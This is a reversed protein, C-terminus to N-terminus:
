QGQRSAPQLHYTLFVEDRQWGAAEYVAQATKNTRATTLSLRIAGLTQAYQAAADLLMTGIGKQRHRQEVFLDNLIFIRAMSVSSFSPYLQTFGAVDTGDHAIFWVSQAHNFRELVFHRAAPLDASQGYFQRYGDFMPGLADLDALTAQRVQIATM